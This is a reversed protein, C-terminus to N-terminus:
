RDSKLLSRYIKRDEETLEPDRDLIAEIMERHEEILIPGEPLRQLLPLLRKLYLQPYSYLQHYSYLFQDLKEVYIERVWPAPPKEVVVDM